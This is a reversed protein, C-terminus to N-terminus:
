GDSRRLTGVSVCGDSSGRRGLAKSESEEEVGVRIVVFVSSVSADDDDVDAFGVLDVFVGDDDFV